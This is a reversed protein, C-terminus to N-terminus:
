KKEKYIKVYSEDPIFSSGVGEIRSAFGNIVEKRKHIVDQQLMSAEPM